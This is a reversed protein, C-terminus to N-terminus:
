KGNGLLKWGSYGVAGAGLVNLLYRLMKRKQLYPIRKTIQHAAVFGALGGVGTGAIQKTLQEATDIKNNEKINESIIENRLNKLDHLTEKGEASEDFLKEMSMNLIPTNPNAKYTFTKQEGSDAADRVAREVAAGSTGAADILQSGYILKRALGAPIASELVLDTAIGAGKGAAVAGAYADQSLYKPDLLKSKAAERYGRALLHPAWGVINSMENRAKRVANEAKKSGTTYTIAKALLMAPTWTARVPSDVFFDIADATENMFGRAVGRPGDGKIAGTLGEKFGQAWADNHAKTADDSVSPVNSNFSGEYGMVGYAQKKFVPYSVAM